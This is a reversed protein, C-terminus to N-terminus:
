DLKAPFKLFEKILEVSQFLSIKPENVNAEGEGLSASGFLLTAAVVLSTVKM